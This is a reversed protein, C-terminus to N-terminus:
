ELTLAMMHDDIYTGDACKLFNRRTGEIVFGLKRYIHVARDNDALVNAQIRSIEPATEGRAWAVVEQMLQQGVGHGQVDPAVSLDLLAAHRLRVPKYRELTVHGALRGALVAVLCCGSGAELRGLKEAFRGEHLADDDGLDQTTMVIGAGIEVLQREINRMAAVDAQRAPRILLDGTGSNM